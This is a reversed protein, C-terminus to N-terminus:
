TDSVARESSTKDERIIKVNDEKELNFNALRLIEDEFTFGEIVFRESQKEPSLHLLDANLNSREFEQVSSIDIVTLDLIYDFANPVDRFGEWDFGAFFSHKSFAQKTSPRKSPDLSLLDELLEKFCDPAKRDYPEEPLTGETIRDFLDIKCSEPFPLVGYYLFYLLIGLAWFDSKHTHPRGEIIEPSIYSMTGQVKNHLTKFTGSLNFDCLKIEGKIDLLINEAKLDGYIIGESHIYCLADIIQAAIVRLQSLRLSRLKALQRINGYPCFELFFYLRKHSQATRILRLVNRHKLLKLLEREVVMKQISEKRAFDKKNVIKIAVCQLCDTRALYVRSFLGFGIERVINFGSLIEQDYRNKPMEEFNIMDMKRQLVETVKLGKQCIETEEASTCVFLNGM